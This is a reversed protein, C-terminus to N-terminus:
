LLLGPAGPNPAVSLGCTWPSRRVGRTYPSLKGGCFISVAGLLACFPVVELCTGLHWAGPGLSVRPIRRSGRFQCCAIQRGSIRRFSSHVPIELHSVLAP